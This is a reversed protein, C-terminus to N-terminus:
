SSEKRRRALLDATRARVAGIVRAVVMRLRAALAGRRLGLSRPSVAAVRRKVPSVSSSMRGLVGDVEAWMAEVDAPTPEGEAFVGADIRQAVAVVGAAPFREALAVSVEHRTDSPTVSAGLDVARDVVEAWGGSMRDSALPRAERQRRRRRKLWLIVLFPALIVALSGAVVLAIVIVRWWDFTPSQPPKRQDDIIDKSADVKESPPDPPPLVQPRPERRPKPVDTQPTKNRDPTPDFPVWGVGDFAIEVWVHAHQGKVEWSSGTEAGKDPYFGMVVRAPMGLQRAMLAMAVAYQEDDGIMQDATLLTNIRETTHGSRSRGDAGDSYFGYERLKAALARAQELPTTATGVFEAAATAVSDPVRSVAPMAIASVGRGALYTPDVPAPVVLDVDYRSGKAVGATTVLQGSARNYYLSDGQGAATPGTFRVGRVDGGGPVWIGEYAGVSLGLTQTAQPTQDGAREGAREDPLAITPGVRQFTSSASDVNYVIGDYADLVALRLRTDRPMGSVTFLTEDRLDREYLRFLTLPSAFQRLDLPPEVVDRLVFRSGSGLLSTLLVAGLAVVALVAAGAAVSGRRTATLSGERGLIDAAEAFRERHAIASLWGLSVVALVLGEALALPAQRTGWLIGVVLLVLTPLVAWGPRRTRLVIVGGVLACVLASLYPVVAPGTFSDAPVAVTLLDRWSTVALLLLRKVTELTPVVGAITTRPLALAGGFVLYAAIGAAVTASPGWRRWASATAVLLGVIVGGGAAQWGPRGSFVPGFAVVGVALLVTLVLLDSLSRSSLRGTGSAGSPRGSATRPPAVLQETSM